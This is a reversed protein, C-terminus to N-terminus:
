IAFDENFDANCDHPISLGIAGELQEKTCGGYIGGLVRIEGADKVFSIDNEDVDGAALKSQYTSDKEYHVFGVKRITEEM